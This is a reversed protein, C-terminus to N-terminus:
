KKDTTRHRSEFYRYGFYGVAWALFIGAYAVVLVTYNQEAFASGAYTSTIVSPIRAVLTLPIFERLRMSTFPVVYCLVDKPTGPIFFLLFVIIRLKKEDKLFKLKEFARSGAFSEVFDRGFFKVAGFVIAQGVAIGVLCLALGGFCGFLTGAFFEVFEGPILAVVIQFVQVLLMIVFGPAEFGDVFEQFAEPEKISRVFPIAVLSIAVMGVIFIIFAILRFTKKKM